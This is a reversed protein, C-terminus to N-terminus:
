VSARALRPDYLWRRAKVASMGASDPHAPNVLVCCEEAVIASPVVLVASRM